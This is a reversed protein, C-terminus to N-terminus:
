AGNNKPEVPVTDECEQYPLRRRVPVCSHNYLDGPIELLVMVVQEPM